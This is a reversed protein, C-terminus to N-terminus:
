SNQSLFDALDAEIAESFENDGCKKIENSMYYVLQCCYEFEEKYEPYFDLYLSISEKISDQVQLALARAQEPKGVLYYDKVM